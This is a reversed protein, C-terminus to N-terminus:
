AGQVHIRCAVTRARDDTTVEIGGYQEDPLCYGACFEELTLRQGPFRPDPYLAHRLGEHVGHPMGDSGFVLDMGPVYGVSDVLMRFPNNRQAYDTPLRDHYCVSDDSFNPQMSLVIGLAKARHATTEHILQAHEIRLRHTGTGLREAQAVVQDIARDGIAHIAMPKGSPLFRRLLAYLEDDTYLLLGRQPEDRYPVNLAATRVGLAGDTFLKIGYTQAQREPPLEDYTDPAVWFRTRASLGAAAFLGIEDGNVLLMEEAVWVGQTQALWNFFQQLRSVSVNGTALANLVRRLNRERWNDDHLHDAVVADQQRLYDMGAQNVVLGHLSLNLVVVPGWASMDAPDLPYRGSNWGYALTLGLTTTARERLRALAETTTSVAGLAVADMFASYLLPHTHHDRLLPISVTPM